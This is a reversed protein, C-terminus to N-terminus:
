HHMSLDPYTAFVLIIQPHRLEGTRARATMQVADIKSSLKPLNIAQFSESTITKYSM